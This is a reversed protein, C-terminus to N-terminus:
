CWTLLIPTDNADHSERLTRARVDDVDDVLELNAARLRVQDGHEPLRLTSAREVM